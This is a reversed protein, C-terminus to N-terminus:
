NNKSLFINLYDFIEGIEKTVLDVFQAPALSRIEHFERDECWPVNVIMSGTMPFRPDTFTWETTSRKEHSVLGRYERLQYNLNRVSTEKRNLFDIFEGNQEKRHDDVSKLFRGLSEFEINKVEPFFIRLFYIVSEVFIFGFLHLSKIDLKLESTKNSNGAEASIRSLIINIEGLESIIKSAEKNFVNDKHIPLEKKKNAQHQLLSVKEILSTLNSM